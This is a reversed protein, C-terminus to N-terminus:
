SQSPPPQQPPQPPQPPQQPYGYQQGYAQQQQAYQWYQMAYQGAMARDAGRMAAILFYLLLGFLALPAILICLGLSHVGPPSLLRAASTLLWLALLLMALVTVILSTIIAGKSGGRVFTGLIIMVLGGVFVFGAMIYMSIQIMGISANPIEQLEAFAEPREAMLRPLSVGAGVCCASSALVLGGLVYMMIGARKAPALVDGQGYDYGPAYGTPPM